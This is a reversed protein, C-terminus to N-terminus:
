MGTRNQVVGGVILLVLLVVFFLYHYSILEQDLVCDSATLNISHLQM